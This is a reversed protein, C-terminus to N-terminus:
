LGTFGAGIRPLTMLISELNQKYGGDKLVLEKQHWELDAPHASNRM